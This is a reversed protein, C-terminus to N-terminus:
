QNDEKLILFEVSDEAFCNTFPHKMGQVSEPVSVTFQMNSNGTGDSLTVSAPLNADCYVWGALIRDGVIRCDALYVGYNKDCLLDIM